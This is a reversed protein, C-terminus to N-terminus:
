YLLNPVNDFGAVQQPVEEVINDLRKQLTMQPKRRSMVGSIYEVDFQPFLAKM